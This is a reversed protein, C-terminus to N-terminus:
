GQVDYVLYYRSGTREFGASQYLNLAPQNQRWLGVTAQRLGRESLRRLATALLARGAGQGQHRPVIGMPEIEGAAARRVRLWAFGIPQEEAFLFLLDDGDRLDAAAETRSYPQYWRTPSFSEEYLRLFLDLTQERPLSRLRCGPPLTSAPESETIPREMQWEEHGLRFGHEELLRATVTQLSPVARTLQRVARRDLSQLLTEFLLAAGGLQCADDHVEGHLEFLGPLGPVPFIAAYGVPEKADLLVWGAGDADRLEAFSPAQPWRRALAPADSARYPRATFHQGRGDGVWITVDSCDWRAGCNPCIVKCHREIMEFGCRDCQWVRLDSM